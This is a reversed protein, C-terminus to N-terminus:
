AVGLLRLANGSLILEKDAVSIDRRGELLEVDEFKM